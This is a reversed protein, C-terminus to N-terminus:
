VFLSLDPQLQATQVQLGTQVQPTEDAFYDFPLNLRRGKVGRERTEVNTNEPNRVGPPVEANMKKPSEPIFDVHFRMPFTISPRM